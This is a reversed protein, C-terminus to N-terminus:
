RKFWYSMFWSPSFTCRGLTQSLTLTLGEMLFVPGIHSVIVVILVHATILADLCLHTTEHVLVMHAIILDMFSNLRLVFILVLHFILSRMVIHTELM